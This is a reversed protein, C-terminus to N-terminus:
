RSALSIDVNLPAKDWAWFIDQDTWKGLKKGKQVKLDFNWSIRALVVRMEVWASQQGMWGSPGIGFPNFANRRDREFGEGEM